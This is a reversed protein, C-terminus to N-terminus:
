PADEGAWDAIERAIDDIPRNSTDWSRSALSEYIPTRAEVLTKWADLGGSALLPRKAGTIRPAVAEPSVTVLVVRRGALEERTDPDLVAGGGLSVVAASQLAEHVAARELSRFHAEGKDAFIEAIPGHAAVVVKDTDIYDRALLRAVRKGLRSKGSGPAGILVLSV